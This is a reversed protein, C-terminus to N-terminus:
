FNLHRLSIFDAKWLIMYQAITIISGPICISKFKAQLLDLDPKLKFLLDQDVHKKENSSFHDFKLLLEKNVSSKWFDSIKYTFSPYVKSDEKWVIKENWKWSEQHCINKNTKWHCVFFYELHSKGKDWERRPSKKKREFPFFCDFKNM